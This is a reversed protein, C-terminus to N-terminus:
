MAKPIQAHFGFLLDTISGGAGVLFNGWTIYM